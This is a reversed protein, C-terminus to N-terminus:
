RTPLEDPRREGRKMRMQTTIEVIIPERVGSNAGEVREPVDGLVGKEQRPASQSNEVVIIAAMFPCYIRMKQGPTKSPVRM